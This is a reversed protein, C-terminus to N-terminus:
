SIIQLRLTLDDELIMIKYGDTVEDIDMSLHNNNIFIHKHKEIFSGLTPSTEYWIKVVNWPKLKMEKRTMQIHNHILRVIYETKVEEDLITDCCMYIGDQEAVLDSTSGNERKKPIMNLPLQDNTLILPYIISVLDSKSDDKITLSKQSLMQTALQGDDVKVLKEIKALPEKISTTTKLKLFSSLNTYNITLKPTVNQYYDVLIINLINMETKLYYELYSPFNGDSLGLYLTKIPRKLPLVSGRIKNVLQISQDLLRFDKILTHDIVQNTVEPYSMYFVSAPYQRDDVKLKQFGHESVFPAFSAFLITFEFLVHHFVQLSQLWQQKFQEESQSDPDYNLSTKGKFIERNLKGYLNTLKEIFAILHSAVNYLRYSRVESNVKEILANLENVIVKDLINNLLHYDQMDFSRFQVEPYTLKFLKLKEDFLKITNYYPIVTQNSIDIITDENFVMSDAKVLQSSIVYLRLADSGYKVVTQDLQPYNGASKSMKKGDTGLIIGTVIVNKFPIKDFIISSIVLLAYFWGRTQDASEVVFDAIHGQDPKIFDLNEFPYHKQAYPVCGSEFWCDFVEPIRRLMGKGQKSPIKLDDIHERHLDTPKDCGTHEILEEISGVCVMEEGDDSLWIPLGTGWKRTRGVCWDRCSELINAFRGSCIHDPVWNIEKNKDILLQKYKSVSIFWCSYVRYMLPTQTRWCFPYSHKYDFSDFLQGSKTLVKIIQRDVDKFYSGKYDTSIFIGYDDIPDFINNDSQRNSCVNSSVCVRFDDEGYAPALHVIGTSGGEVTDEVFDDELVTWTKDNSAKFYSFVPEYKLGLLDSGTYQNTKLYRLDKSSKSITTNVMSKLYKKESVIYHKGNTQDKVCVYIIKKNVCLAMNSPLTWPTTTWVLFYTDDQFPTLGRNDVVVKFLVTTSPDTVEQYNQKAEFDSFATQCGTSFPMVQYARYILGKDFFQKFIWWVSEMYNIDMTKYNDNPDVFRANDKFMSRWDDVCNFVQERCQDGFEKITLARHDLNAQVFKKEVLAEIPVGHTDWGIQLDVRKGSMLMVNAYISKVFSVLLHGYHPLGTAFPPGDIFKWEEKDSSRKNLEEILKIEDWYQGMQEYIPRLYTTKFNSVKASTKKKDM